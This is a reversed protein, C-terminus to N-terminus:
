SGDLKYQNIKSVIVAVLRVGHLPSEYGPHKLVALIGPNWSGLIGPDWSYWSSSLMFVEPDLSIKVGLLESEGLIEPNCSGLIM